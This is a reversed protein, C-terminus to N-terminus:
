LLLCMAAKKLKTPQLRKELIDIFERVRSEEGEEGLTLQNLCIQRAELLSRLGEEDLRPSRTAESCKRKLEMAQKPHPNARRLELGRFSRFDEPFYKTWPPKNLNEEVKVEAMKLYFHFIDAWGCMGTDLVGDLKSLHAEFQAKYNPDAIIDALVKPINFLSETSTEKKVICEKKTDPTRPTCPKATKFGNKPRWVVEAMLTIMGKKEQNGKGAEM